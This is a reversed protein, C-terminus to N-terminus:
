SFTEASHLLMKKIIDDLSASYIRLIWPHNMEANGACMWDADQVRNQPVIGPLAKWFDSFYVGEYMGSQGAWSKTLM